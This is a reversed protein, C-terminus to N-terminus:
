VLLPFLRTRQAGEPAIERGQARPSGRAYSAEQRRNGSCRLESLAINLNSGEGEGRLVSLSSAEWSAVKGDRSVALGETSIPFEINGFGQSCQAVYCKGSKYFGGSRSEWSM